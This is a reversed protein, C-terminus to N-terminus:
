LAIATLSLLNLRDHVRPIQLLHYTPDDTILASRQVAQCCSSKGNHVLVRYIERCAHLLLEVAGCLLVLMLAALAAASKMTRQQTIDAPPLAVATAASISFQTSMRQLPLIYM